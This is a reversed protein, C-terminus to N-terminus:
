EISFDQSCYNYSCNNKGNFVSFSKCYLRPWRKVDRETLVKYLCEAQARSYECQFRTNRNPSKRLVTILYMFASM